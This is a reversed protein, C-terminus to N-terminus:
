KEIKQKQHSYAGGSLQKERNLEGTYRMFMGDVHSMEALLEESADAFEEKLHREFKQYHKNAASFNGNLHAQAANHFHQFVQKGHRKCISNQMDRLRDGDSIQGYEYFGPTHNRKLEDVYEGFMKDHKLGEAVVKSVEDKISPESANVAKVKKMAIRYCSSVSM